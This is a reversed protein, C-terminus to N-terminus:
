RDIIDRISRLLDLPGFPKHLLDLNESIIFKESITNASYGSVFLFKLDPKRTSLLEFLEKGGMKPMVVDSVVLDIQENHKDFVQLAEEGNAAMLVKYGEAELVMSTLNRLGVEDEVILITEAGRLPATTTQRKIIEAPHSVALLYIKFTTGHGLESYVQILGEHQKVIGYVMSLGLGTGKGPEKTTFFPEFIREQTTKDMGTGSDSVQLMVYKGPKAWAHTRCYSEDLIINETEIILKGGQPMADRANVCLNMLVQEIQSIDAHVTALDDAKIFKLEIHEGIIRRLFKEFDSIVNNLNINKSELVQRRAFALLQRTLTAAREAAQKTEQILRYVPHQPTLQRLSIETYGFIATLINNFDHAVGGALTGISEMKQAQRLQEELLKKESIDTALVLRAQRDIFDIQHSSVDAWIISGDKKCHRIAEMSTIKEPSTRLQEITEMIRTIEEQPHIDKITMSLFEERSYGYRAITTDNVALFRLTNVDYVWMAEPNSEFLLRYKAESKRLAEKALMNQMAIAAQNAVLKLLRIEADDFQRIQTSGTILVGLTNDGSIIPVAILSPFKNQFIKWAISRHQAFTTNSVIVPKRQSFVYGPITGEGIPESLGQLKESEPGVCTHMVLTEGPLDPLFIGCFDVKLIKIVANITYTLIEDFDLAALLQQSFKLLAAQENVHRSCTLEYLRANEIAVAIQNAISQILEKDIQRFERQQRIGILMIGIVEGKVKLPVLIFSHFGVRKIEQADIISRTKASGNLELPLAVIEQSKLIFEVLEGKTAQDSIIRALEDPFSRHPKLIVGEEALLLTGTSDIELIDILNDFADNLIKDINLSQSVTNGIANLASLHLNSVELDRERLKLKDNIQVAQEYTSILLDLIQQRESTIFHRQGAFEIEVGVQLKDRKRLERNTLIYEIRALLYDEEYPKTIFNDAGCELGRIIDVTDALSTLLIIPVEKLENDSKVHKCFEFGNMQPMLVDSIILTPKHKRIAELGEIGTQALICEYGREELFFRLKQAQTISDEIVLITKHSGIRSVM